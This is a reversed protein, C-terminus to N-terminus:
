RQAFQRRNGAQLREDVWDRICRVIHHGVSEFRRLAVYARQGAFLREGASPELKLIGTFRPSVLQLQDHTLTPSKAHDARVALDGGEPACLSPDIPVDSARPDIKQLVGRVPDIGSLHAHLAQGLKGRFQEVDEQAISVRIKKAREVGISCIAAGKQLYTGELSAIARGVIVGDCPARLILGSLEARLEDARSELNRLKEKEAQSKVWEGHRDFMRGKLRSEDILLELERLDHELQPNEMKVLIQGRTVQQGGTVLLNDVFGNSGARVITEPDFEVIAPATTAGPWPLLLAVCLMLASISTTVLAFRLWNVRHDGDAHLLHVLRRLMSRVWLAIAIAVLVIGAGDFLTVAALLLSAFVVNRWALSAWGYGSIIASRVGGQSCRGVRDGLLYKRVCQGVHQRGQDYLNPIELADSMIYYGDFRMLPNANFILTMVSATMLVNFSLEHIVGIDTRCWVLAAVAAILLEVYMGAAAIRMRDWKSRIRWTSTVDVYALPAFLILIIGAERVDGGLRKCCVGHSCEHILKLIVWASGLWMWNGAAIVQSASSTLQDSSAILDKSAWGVLVLWSVVAPWSFVWGLWPEIREFFRDPYCLPLQMSLPGLRRGSRPTQASAQRPQQKVDDDRWTELALEHRVAWQCITVADNPQLGCDPLTELTKKWAAQVSRVGDLASLLMYEAVGIRFFRATAPDEAIFCQQNGFRQPRFVLDRRLKPTPCKLEKALAPEQSISAMNSDFM